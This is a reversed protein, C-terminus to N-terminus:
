AKKLKAIIEDRKRLNGLSVENNKAWERMEAVTMADFDPATPESDPTDGEWPEHGEATVWLGNTEDYVIATGDVEATAGYQPECTRKLNDLAEKAPCGEAHTIGSAYGGNDEHQWEAGCESCPPFVAPELKEVPEVLKVEGTELDTEYTKGDAPVAIGEGVVGTGPHERETADETVEPLPDYPSELVEVRLGVRARIEALQADSVVIPDSVANARFLRSGRSIPHPNSNTVVIQHLM